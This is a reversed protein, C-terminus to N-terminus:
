ITYTDTGDFNAILDPLTHDTSSLAVDHLTMSGCYNSGSALSVTDDLVPITYTSAATGAPHVIKSPATYQIVTNWCAATVELLFIEIHLLFGEYEPYDQAVVLLKIEHSGVVTPDTTVFSFTRLVPSFTLGVLDSVLQYEPPGCDDLINSHTFDNFPSSTVVSAGDAIEFSM